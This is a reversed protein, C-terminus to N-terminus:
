KLEGAASNAPAVAVPLVAVVTTDLQSRVQDNTVVMNPRQINQVASQVQQLVENAEEDPVEAQVIEMVLILFFSCMFYFCDLGDRGLWLRKRSQGQTLPSLDQDRTGQVILIM